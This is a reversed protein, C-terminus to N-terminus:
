FRVNAANNFNIGSGGGYVGQIPGAGSLMGGAANGVAGGPGYIGGGPLALSAGGTGIAAGIQGAYKAATGVRGMATQFNSKTDNAMQQGQLAMNGIGLQNQNGQLMQQQNGLIQNGFMGSMGPTAGYLSSQANIAQLRPDYMSARQNALGAQLGAQQNAIQANQGFETDAASLGGLGQLGSLKGQQQMRAIEGNVQQLVDSMQQSTGARMKASAANFNPSYGGQINKQRSMENQMNNYVSQVPSLARSRMNTLDDSSFGGTDAFGSYGQMAKNMEASRNYNVREAGIMGIDKQPGSAYDKYQNMIDRYSDMQMPIAQDYASNFRNQTDNM